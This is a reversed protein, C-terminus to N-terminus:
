QVVGFGVVKLHLQASIFDVTLSSPLLSGHSCCAPCERDEYSVSHLGQSNPPTEHDFQHLLKCVFLPSLMIHLVICYSSVSQEKTVAHTLYLFSRLAPHLPHFHQWCLM